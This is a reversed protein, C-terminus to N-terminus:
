ECFIKNVQYSSRQQLSTTDPVVQDLMRFGNMMNDNKRRKRGVIFLKKINSLNRENKTTFKIFDLFTQCQDVSQIICINIYM